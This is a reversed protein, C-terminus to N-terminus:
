AQDLLCRLSMHLAQRVGPVVPRHEVATWEGLRSEAAM